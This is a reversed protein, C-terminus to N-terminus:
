GTAHNEKLKIKTKYCFVVARRSLISEILVPRIRLLHSDRTSPQLIDMRNQYVTSAVSFFFSTSSLFTPTFHQHLSIFIGTSCTCCFHSYIFLFLHLLGVSFQVEEKLNASVAQGRSTRACIQYQCKRELNLQFSRRTVDSHSKRNHYYKLLFQWLAFAALLM